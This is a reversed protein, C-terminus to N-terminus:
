GAETRKVAAVVLMNELKLKDPVAPFRIVIPDAVAAFWVSDFDLPVTDTEFQEILLDLAVPPAVHSASVSLPFTFPPLLVPHIKPPAPPV